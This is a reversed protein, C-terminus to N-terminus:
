DTNTSTKSEIQKHFIMKNIRKDKIHSADQMTTTHQISLIIILTYVHLPSRAHLRANHIFSQIPVM